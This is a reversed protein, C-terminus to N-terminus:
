LVSFRYNYIIAYVWSAKNGERNQVVKFMLLYETDACQTSLNLCNLYYFGLVQICTHQKETVEM